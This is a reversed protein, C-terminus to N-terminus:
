FLGSNEHFFDDGNVIIRCEGNPLEKFPVWPVEHHKGGM